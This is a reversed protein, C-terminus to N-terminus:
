TITQNHDTTHRSSAPVAPQHHHHPTPPSFCLLFQAVLRGTQPTSPTTPAQLAQRAVLFDDVPM